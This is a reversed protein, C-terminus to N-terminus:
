RVHFTLSHAKASPNADAAFVTREVCSGGDLVLAPELVESEFKEFQSNTLVPKLNGLVQQASITGLAAATVLGAPPGYKSSSLASLVGTVSNMVMGLVTGVSHNQNRLIVALMIQRGIPQLGANSQALAQYIESSVISQKADTINCVDLDYASINKPLRGYNQQLLSAPIATGTVAFTNQASAMGGCLLSSLVAGAFFKM